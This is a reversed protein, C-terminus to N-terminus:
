GSRIGVASKDAPSGSWFGNANVIEFFRQLDAPKPRERLATAISRGIDRLFRGLRMTTVILLSVPADSLNRWAHELDVTDFDTKARKASRAIKREIKRM